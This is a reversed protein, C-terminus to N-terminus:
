NAESRLARLLQIVENQRAPQHALADSIAGLLRNREEDDSAYSLASRALQVAGEPRETIAQGIALAVTALRRDPEGPLEGQRCLTALASLREADASRWAPQLLIIGSAPDELIRFAVAQEGRQALVLVALLIEAVEDDADQPQALARAVEPALLEDRHETLFAETDAAGLWKDILAQALVPAYASEVGYAAADARIHLYLDAKEEAGTAARIEKILVDTAPDLLPPNALLYDRARHPADANWWAVLLTSLSVDISLWDPVAGTRKMWLADFSGADVSRESRAIEHVSRTFEPDNGSIRLADLITGITLDLEEPPRSRHLALQIAIEPSSALDALVTDWTAPGAANLGSALRVVTAEDATLQTRLEAISSSVVEAAEAEFGLARLARGMNVRVLPLLWKPTTPGSHELLSVARRALELAAQNQEAAIHIIVLNGLAMALASRVIPSDPQDALLQIAREASQQAEDKQGLNLYLGSNNAECLGRVLANVPEAVDLTQLIELAETAFNIAEVPRFMGIVGALDSLMAALGIANPLSPASDFLVRQAEVAAELAANAEDTNGARNLLQVLVSLAQAREARFVPNDSATLLDVAEYQREILSSLDASDDKSLATVAMRIADGLQEAALTSSAAVPRLRREAEELDALAQAPDPVIKARTVLNTALAIAATASRDAIESALTVAEDILGAPDPLDDDAGGTQARLWSTYALVRLGEAFYIDSFTGTPGVERFLVVMRAAAAPVPLDHDGAPTVGQIVQIVQVLEVLARIQLTELLVVEDTRQDDLREDLAALARASYTDAQQVDGRIMAARAAVGCAGALADALEPDEGIKAELLGASEIALYWAGDANGQRLHSMAQMSFGTALTLGAIRDDHAGRAVERTLRVAESVATGAGDGDGDIGRVLALDFLASVLESPDDLQRRLSVLEEALTVAEKASAYLLTLSTVLDIAAALDPLFAGRDRAVFRRLLEIGPSGADALHRWAHRWLYAHQEPAQGEDLLQEYLGAVTAAIALAEPGSLDRGSRGGRLPPRLHDALRQHAVRYVAQDGEAGVVVHRGLKLLLAYADNRTYQTGTPSIATAIAPWLDDAPLGSGYAYTLAHLLERAATPHAQGAITLVTGQLDNEM